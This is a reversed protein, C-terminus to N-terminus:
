KGFYLGAREDVTPKPSPQIGYKELLIGQAALLGAKAVEYGFLARTEADIATRFSAQADRVDFTTANGVNKRALQQAFRQGALQVAEHAAEIEQRSNTVERVGSRVDQIVQDEANKYDILAQIKQLRAIALNYRATRNGIPVELSIGAAFSNYDDRFGLVEHDEGTLRNFRFSATLDLQPLLGNEAVVVSIDNNKLLERRQILEPRRELAVLAADRWAPPDIFDASVETLPVLKVAWMERDQFDFILRKLADASRGIENKAVSLDSLRQALESKAELVDINTMSGAKAKKTNIEVLANSQEVLLQRTQFDRLSFYHNWYAVVTENARLLRSEELGAATAQLSNRASLLRSKTVTTGAGRLLPQTISAGVDSRYSPDLSLPGPNPRITHSRNINLDVSYTAGNVLTGRFGTSASWDDSVIPQIDLRSKGPTITGDPNLTGPSTLVQVSPSHDRQYNASLFFITDFAGMERGVNGKAIQVDIEGSRLVLANQEALQICQELTIPMIRENGDTTDDQLLALAVMIAQVSM